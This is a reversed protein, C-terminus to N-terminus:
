DPASSHRRGSGPTWQRLRSFVWPSCFATAGLPWPSFAEALLRLGASEGAQTRVVWIEALTVSYLVVTPLLIQTLFSDQFIKQSIVGSIYGTVAFSTM